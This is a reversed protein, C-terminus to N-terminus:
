VVFSTNKGYCTSSYDKLGLLWIIIVNLGVEQIQDQRRHIFDKLRRGFVEWNRSSYLYLAQDILQFLCEM